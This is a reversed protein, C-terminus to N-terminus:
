AADDARAGPEEEHLRVGEAPGGAGGGHGDALIQFGIDFQLSPIGVSIKKRTLRSALVTPAMQPMPPPTMMLGTSSRNWRSVTAAILKREPQVTSDM